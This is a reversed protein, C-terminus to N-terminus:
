VNKLNKEMSKNEEPLVKFINSNLTSRIQGLEVILQEMDKRQQNVINEKCTDRLDLKTFWTRLQSIGELLETKIESLKDNYYFKHELTLQAYKNIELKLNSNISEIRQIDENIVKVKDNLSKIDFVSAAHKKYNEVEHSKVAQSLFFLM